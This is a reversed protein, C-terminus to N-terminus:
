LPLGETRYPDVHSIVMRLKGGETRPLRDQYARTTIQPEAKLLDALLRKMKELYEPAFDPAPVYNIHFDLLDKQVVQLERIGVAYKTLVDAVVALIRGDPCVVMDDWRGLIPSAIPHPRKSDSPSAYLAIMDNTVYNILPSVYNILTTAVINGMERPSVPTVLDQDLVRVIGYPAIVHNTGEPSTTTFYAYDCSCMDCVHCDWVEEIHERFSPLLRDSTTYVVTPKHTSKGTRHIFDVFQFIIGPFGYVGEPRFRNFEELYHPFTEQNLHWASFQLTNNSSDRRWYPPRQQRLPTTKRVQFSAKRISRWDVGFWELVGHYMAYNHALVDRNFYLRFPNGTTGATYANLIQSRPVRQNFFRTYDRKVIDKTVVPLKYLDEQSRIDDPTLKLSRFLDHYYPVNDYADWILEHLKEDQWAKLETTSLQDLERFEQQYTEYTGRFRFSRLQWGVLSVAINQAFVPLGSYVNIGSNRVISDFIRNRFSSM